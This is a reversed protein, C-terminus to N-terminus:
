PPCEWAHESPTQAIRVFHLEPQTLMAWIDISEGSYVTLEDNQFRLCGSDQHLISVIEYTSTNMIRVGYRESFALLDGSSNFTMYMVGGHGNQAQPIEAWTTTDWIRIGPSRPLWSDGVAAVLRSEDPSFLLVNVGLEDGLFAALSGGTEVDWITIDGRRMFGNNTSVALWRGSPSFVVVNIPVEVTHSWLPIPSADAYFTVTREIAVAYHQGDPSERRLTIQAQVGSVTVLLAILLGAIRNKM